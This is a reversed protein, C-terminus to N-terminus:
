QRDVKLQDLLQQQQGFLGQPDRRLDYSSPSSSLHLEQVKIHSWDIDSHWQVSTQPSDFVAQNPKFPLDRLPLMIAFTALHDKFNIGTVQASKFANSYFQSNINMSYFVGLSGTKREFTGRYLRLNPSKTARVNEALQPNLVKAEQRSSKGNMRLSVLRGDAINRSVLPKLTAAARGAPSQNRNPLFKTISGAMITIILLATALRGMWVGSLPNNPMMKRTQSLPIGQARARDVFRATMSKPFRVDTSRQGSLPLAQSSIQAFDSIRTQCDVCLELHKKLERLDADGLQDVVALACLIEFQTHESM